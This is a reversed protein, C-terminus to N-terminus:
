KPITELTDGNSYASVWERNGGAPEEDWDIKGLRSAVITVEVQRDPVVFLEQFFEFGRKLNPKFSDAMRKAIRLSNLKLPRRYLNFDRAVPFDIERILARWIFQDNEDRMEIM